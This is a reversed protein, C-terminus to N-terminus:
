QALCANFAKVQFNYLDVLKKLEIALQDYANIHQNYIKVSQNYLEIKEQSDSSTPKSQVLEVQEQKLGDALASLESEKTKIQTKLGSNVEPCASTPKGFEQVALWTSRGEFDGYIFGIGIETFNKSLINARHGPSDMWAQVLDNDNSYDGLALNEGVALFKYGTALVVDSVGLGLPSLHDFYQKDLMDQAKNSAAQSLLNSKKLIPLGALQRQRNTATIIGEQTLQGAETNINGTRLPGPTTIITQVEVIAQGMDNSFNQVSEKISQPVYEKVGLTSQSYVIQQYQWWWGYLFFLFLLFYIYFRKPM